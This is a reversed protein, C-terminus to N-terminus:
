VKVYYWQLNSWRGVGRDGRRAVPAPLCVGGSGLRDVVFLSSGNASVEDLYANTVPAKGAINGTIQFSAGDAVVDVRYYIRVNDCDAPPQESGDGPYPSTNGGDNSFRDYPPSINSLPTGPPVKAPPPPPPPPQKQDDKDPSCTDYQLTYLRAFVATDAYCRIRAETWSQALNEYDKITDTISIVPLGQANALNAFSQLIGEYACKLAILVQGASDQIGDYSQRLWEHSAHSIVYDNRLFTVFSHKGREPNWNRNVYASRALRVVDLYLITARFKSQAAPIRLVGSGSITRSEVLTWNAM